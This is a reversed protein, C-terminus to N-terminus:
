AGVRRRPHLLRLGVWSLVGGALLGGGLLPRHAIWAAAITVLTIPVALTVAVLFAGAGFISELFPVVAFLMTLPQTLCILSVLIILFGVGRLIWTMQSAAHQADQFLAAATVVGPEALAIRYDGAGRFTTLSGDSQAAAVSITQAPVALFSVRVDGIEPHSPDQGRYFGDGAARFGDAPTANGPHLPTFASIKSLLAPTVRYAGITVAGGGFDANLLTVPPNEHGQPYKFGASDIAQASWVPHYSYTTETTKTGGLSDQSHSSATQQWQYTEVKRSLRLLGDASVGFVPDRAPTAPQMMGTLHVLKGDNRPDVAGASVDIVAAAGYRLATAATVARGENWYLLFVGAPLLVLGFLLAVFGGGIRQFWNESTIETYQDPVIM